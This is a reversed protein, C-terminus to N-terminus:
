TKVVRAGIPISQIGPRKEGGHQRSFLHNGRGKKEGERKEEEGRPLRKGTRSINPTSQKREGKGKGLHGIYHMGRDGKKKGERKLNKEGGHSYVRL